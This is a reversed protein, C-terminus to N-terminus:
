IVYCAALIIPNRHCAPVFGKKGPVVDTPTVIQELFPQQFAYFQLYRGSVSLARVSVRERDREEVREREGM